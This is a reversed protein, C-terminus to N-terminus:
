AGDAGIADCGDVVPDGTTGGRGADVEHTRTPREDHPSPSLVGFVIVNVTSGSLTTSPWSVATNDSELAVPAVSPM